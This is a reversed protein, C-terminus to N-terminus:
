ERKSLSMIAGRSRIRPGKWMFVGICVPFLVVPLVAYVIYPVKAGAAKAIWQPTYFPPHFCMINLFFQFVIMSEVTRGPYCETMYTMLVTVVIEQGFVFLSLGSLPAAWHSSHNDLEFGYVLLGVKTGM